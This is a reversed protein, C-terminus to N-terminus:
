TYRIRFNGYRISTEPAGRSGGVSGHVYSCRGPWEFAPNLTQAKRAARSLCESGRRSKGSGASFDLDVTLLSFCFIHISYVLVKSVRCVYTPFFIGSYLASAANNTEIALLTPLVFM